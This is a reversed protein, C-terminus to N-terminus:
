RIRVKLKQRYPSEPSAVIQPFHPKNLADPWAQAELCIGAFAGYRRGGLGPVPIAMAPADFIQIGPQDTWLELVRGAGKLRAAPAAPDRDDDLVLNLDIGERGPDNAGIEAEERFDMRLGDVPAVAGTPILGEDVPTYRSAALWLRHALVDGGGGLNYYNHQALNIPTRRDPRGAMDYTVTHGDLAIVVEFDVSGPYGEEGAPSRYSLRVANAASDTEMGWIRRGLGVVGGHLHHAGNNTPLRYAEGDLTFRGFATRNAVRGAVIGFSRSHAPYHDFEDFGLVMPTDGVRWDRTVCGYDLVSLRVNGDELVAERVERGELSGFRRIEVM